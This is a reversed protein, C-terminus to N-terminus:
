SQVDPFCPFFSISIFYVIRLFPCFKSRDMMMWQHGYSRLFCHRNAPMFLLYSAYSGLFILSELCTEHNVIVLIALIISGGCGYSRNCIRLYNQNKVRKSHFHTGLLNAHLNSLCLKGRQLHNLHCKRKCFFEM